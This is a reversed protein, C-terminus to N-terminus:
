SNLLLNGNPRSMLSFKHGWKTTLVLGYQPVPLLTVIVLIQKPVFTEM